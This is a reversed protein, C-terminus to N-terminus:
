PAAEWRTVKSSFLSCLDSKYSPLYEAIKGVLTAHEIGLRETMLAELDRSMDHYSIVEGEASHPSQGHNRADFTM